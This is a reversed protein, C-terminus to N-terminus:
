VILNCADLDKLKPKKPTRIGVSNCWISNHMSGGFLTLWNNTVLSKGSYSQTRQSFCSLYLLPSWEYLGLLVHQMWKQPFRCPSQMSCLLKNPSTAWAMTAVQKRRWEKWCWWWWRWQPREGWNCRRWGGLEM